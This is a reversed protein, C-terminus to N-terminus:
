IFGPAQISDRTISGADGADIELQLIGTAVAIRHWTSWARHLTLLRGATKARSRRDKTGRVRGGKDPLLVYCRCGSRARRSLGDDLRARKREVDLANDELHAYIV